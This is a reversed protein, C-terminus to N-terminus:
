ADFEVMVPAHDSPGSKTEDAAREVRDVIAGVCATALRPTCYVHDIRLGNGREFGLGRYDWWSYVGGDPHFGRVVDTFGFDAIHRLAARVDPNALVGGHWEEPRAMDDDFPAVNFDGCLALADKEPDFRADLVERLRAMWALKYPYKDSDLAGGNPFYACMVTAGRIRASIVRAQEDFTPDDLGLRVDSMPDLSLIAVGNYTKQANLAIHYGLAAVEVSPFTDELGKLEQLCLVDPRHETLWAVLRDGRAKVSNINWTALKM